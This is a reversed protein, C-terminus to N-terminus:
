EIGEDRNSQEGVLRIYQQYLRRIDDDSMEDLGRAALTFRPDNIANRLFARAKEISGVIPLDENPHKGRVVMRQRAAALRRRGAEATAAELMQLGAARVAVPDDGDLVEDDSMAMLEDFYTDLLMDFPELKETHSSM